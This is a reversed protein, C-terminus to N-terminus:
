RTAILALVRPSFTSIRPHRGRQWRARRTILLWTRESKVREAFALALLLVFSALGARRGLETAPIAEARPTWLPKAGKRCTGSRITRPGLAGYAMSVAVSFLRAGASATTAINRWGFSALVPLAAALRAFDALTDVIEPRIVPPRHKGRLGKGGRWVAAAM